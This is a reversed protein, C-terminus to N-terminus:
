GITGITVDVTTGCEVETGEEPEQLTVTSGSELRQIQGLRLDEERLRAGAANETLRDLDPVVCRRAFVLGVAGSRRVLTRAAPNQEIVTGARQRSREESTEGVRLGAARLLREAEERTTGSLNPVRVGAVTVELHVPSGREVRRGARPNQGSVFDTQGQALTESVRGRELGAEDLRNEAEELSLNKLDPVIVSAEEIVLDVRDGARSAAGSTPEQSIVTGADVEGTIRYRVRGLVLKQEALLALADRETLGTLTPVEVATLRDVERAWATLTGAEAMTLDPMREPRQPGRIVGQELAGYVVPAWGTENRPSVRVSGEVVAVKVENAADVGFFFETGEAGATVFESEVELEERIEELRKRIVYFVRGIRVFISPNELRIETAPGLTVEYADDLVSLIARTDASTIIEDNKRLLMNLEPSLSRGDRIVQISRLEAGAVAENEVVVGELTGYPTACSALVIGLSLVCLRRCLGHLPDPQPRRPRSTSM